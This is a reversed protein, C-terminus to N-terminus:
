YFVFKYKARAALKHVFCESNFVNPFKMKVLVVFEYSEYNEERQNDVIIAISYNNRDFPCPLCAIGLECVRSCIESNWSSFYGGDVYLIGTVLRTKSDGQEQQGSVNPFKYKKM